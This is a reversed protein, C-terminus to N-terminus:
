PPDLPIQLGISGIRDNYGHNGYLSNGGTHIYQLSFRLAGGWNWTSTLFGIGFTGYLKTGTNPLSYALSGQGVAYCRCGVNNVIQHNIGIGFLLFPAFSGTRNELFWLANLGYATQHYSGPSGNDFDPNYDIVGFELNWDPAIPKGFDVQWASGNHTSEKSDPWANSYQPALYWRTSIGSQDQARAILPCAVTALTIAVLVYKLRPQM